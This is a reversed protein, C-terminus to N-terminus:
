YVLFFEVLITRRDAALWGSHDLRHEVLAANESWRAALDRHRWGFERRVTALEHEVQEDTLALVRDLVAGARAHSNAGLEQGPLFLRAVVRAPDPKLAVDTRRVWSRDPSPRM